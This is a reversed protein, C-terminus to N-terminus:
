LNSHVSVWFIKSSDSNKRKRFFRFQLGQALTLQVSSSPSKEQYDSSARQMGPTGGHICHTSFLQAQARWSNGQCRLCRLTHGRHNRDLCSDVEPSVPHSWCQCLWEVSPFFTRHFFSGRNRESSAGETAWTNLTELATQCSGSILLSCNPSQNQDLSVRILQGGKIEWM